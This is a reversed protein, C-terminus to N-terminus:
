GVKRAIFCQVLDSYILQLPQVLRVPGIILVVKSINNLEDNLVIRLM